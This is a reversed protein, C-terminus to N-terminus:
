RGTPRAEGHGPEDLIQEGAGFDQAPDADPHQQQGPEGREGDDQALEGSQQPQLLEAVDMVIGPPGGIELVLFRPCAGDAPELADIRVAGVDTAAECSRLLWAPSMM